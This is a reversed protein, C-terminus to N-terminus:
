LAIRASFNLKADPRSTAVAITPAAADSLWVDRLAAGLKGAASLGANPSHAGSRELVKCLFQQARRARHDAILALADTITSELLAGGSAVWAAQGDEAGSVWSSSLADLISIPVVHDFSGGVEGDLRDLVKALDGSALLDAQTVALISCRQPGAALRQWALRESEKWAGTAVTCWIPLHTLALLREGSHANGDANGFGPTDIVEFSLLRDLPLGVDLRAVPQERVDDIRSWSIPQFEGNRLVVALSTKPAYHYRIPFRTNAVVSTPVIFEGILLNALSSKGSNVEGLLLIRPPRMLRDRVRLLLKALPKGTPTQQLEEAESSLLSHLALHTDMNM